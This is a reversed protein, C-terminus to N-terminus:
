GSLCPGAPDAKPASRAGWAGGQERRGASCAGSTTSGFAERGGPVPVANRAQCSDGLDAGPGGGEWIWTGTWM